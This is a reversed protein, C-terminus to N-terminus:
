MATASGASAEAAAICRMLEAKVAPLAFAVGAANKQCQWFEALCWGHSSALLEFERTISTESITRAANWADTIEPM